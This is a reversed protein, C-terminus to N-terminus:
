REIVMQALHEEIPAEEIVPTAVEEVPTELVVEEEQQVDEECEAPTAEEEKAKPPEKSAKSKPM